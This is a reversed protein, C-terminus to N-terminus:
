NVEQHMRNLIHAFMRSTFVKMVGDKEEESELLIVFKTLRRICANYGELYVENLLKMIDDDSMNSFMNGQM